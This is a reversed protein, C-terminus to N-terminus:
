VEIGEVRVDRMFTTRESWSGAPLPILEFIPDGAKSVTRGVDWLHRAEEARDGVSEIRTGYAARIAAVLKLLVPNDRGKLAKPRDIVTPM